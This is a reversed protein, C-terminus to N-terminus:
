PKELLREHDVIDLCYNPGIKKGSSVLRKPCQDLVAKIADYGFWWCREAELLSLGNEKLMAVAASEQTHIIGRSLVINKDVIDSVLLSIFSFQKKHGLNKLHEIICIDTNEFMADEFARVVDAITIYVRKKNTFISNHENM